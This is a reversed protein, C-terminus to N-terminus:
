AFKPEGIDLPDSDLLDDASVQDRALFAEPPYLLELTSRVLGTPYYKLLRFEIVLADFDKAHAMLGNFGALGVEFSTLHGRLLNAYRRKEEFTLTTDQRLRWLITYLLRFYPGFTSEYPRHVKVVYLEAVKRRDQRAERELAGLWYRFESMAARFAAAGQLAKSKSTTSKYMRYEDSQRFRVESRAARLMGLLEFYTTEFRQKHFDIQQRRIVAAQQVFTAVVVAFGVAGTLASYPGFTDGWAAADQITAGTDMSWFAVDISIWGWVLWFGFLIVSAVIAVVITLKTM